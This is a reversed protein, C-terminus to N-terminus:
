SWSSGGKGSCAFTRDPEEVFGGFRNVLGMYSRLFLALVKQRRVSLGKNPQFASREHGEWAPSPWWTLLTVRLKAGAGQLFSPVPSGDRVSRRSRQCSASRCTM